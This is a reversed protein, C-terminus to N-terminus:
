LEAASIRPITSPTLERPGETCLRPRRLLHSTRIDLFEVGQMIKRRQRGDRRLVLGLARLSPARTTM